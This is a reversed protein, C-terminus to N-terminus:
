RTFTVPRKCLGRIGLAVRFCLSRSALIRSTADSKRALNSLIRKAEAMDVVGTPGEGTEAEHMGLLAVVATSHLARHGAQRANADDGATAYGAAIASAKATMGQTKCWAFAIQTPSANVTKGAETWWLEGLPEWTIQETM